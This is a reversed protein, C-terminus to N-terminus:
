GLELGHLVLVIGRYCMDFVTVRVTLRARVRVRVRVTSASGDGGEGELGSGGESSYGENSKLAAEEAM